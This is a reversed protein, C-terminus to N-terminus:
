RTVSVTGLIRGTTLDLVTILNCDSILYVRNGQPTVGTLGCGAPLTVSLDGFATLDAPTAGGIAPAPPAAAPTGAVPAPPTDARPRLEDETGFLRFGPNSAKHYLGVVLFVMGLVILAGMAMVLGKLANM